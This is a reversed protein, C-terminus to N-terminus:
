PELNGLLALQKGVLSGKNKFRSATFGDKQITITIIKWQWTLSGCPVTEYLKMFGKKNRTEDTLHYIM